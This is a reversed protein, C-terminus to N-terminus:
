HPRGTLKIAAIVKDQTTDIIKLANESEITTFQRKGDAQVAAGHVRAGVKISGTVRLSPLDIVTIDDSASNTVYLKTSQSRLLGPFGLLLIWSLWIKM